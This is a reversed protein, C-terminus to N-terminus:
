VWFLMFSYAEFVDPWTRLALRVACPMVRSFSIDLAPRSSVSTSQQPRPTSSLPPHRSQHLAHPKREPPHFCEPGLHRHHNHFQFPASAHTACKLISFAAFKAVILFINAFFLVTEVAKFCLCWLDNYHDLAFFSSLHTHPCM